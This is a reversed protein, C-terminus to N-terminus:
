NGLIECIQMTNGDSDQFTQMKVHGPVEIIDGVLKVGRKKFDECAKNIDDVTVTVVANTGAKAGYEINERAIGLLTGEPGSLEAWGFEPSSERLELGVTETYFKIAAEFDKVVIWSMEIGLTKM